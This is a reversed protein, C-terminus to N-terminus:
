GTVQLVPTKPHRNVAEFLGEYDDFPFNLPMVFKINKRNGAQIQFNTVILLLV